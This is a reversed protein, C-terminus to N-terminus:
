GCTLWNRSQEESQPMDKALKNRQNEDLRSQLAFQRAVLTGGAHWRHGLYTAIVPGHDPRLAGQVPRTQAM